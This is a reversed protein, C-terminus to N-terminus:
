KSKMWSLSTIPVDPVCTMLICVLTQREAIQTRGDQIKRIKTGADDRQPISNGCVTYVSSTNSTIVYLFPSAYSKIDFWSGM